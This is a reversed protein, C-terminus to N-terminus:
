RAVNEAMIRGPNENGVAGAIRLRQGVCDAGQTLQDALLWDEADTQAMLEQTQGQTRLRELQLKAMTAGIMRDEIAACALDFNGRLIVAEGDGRVRQGGVDLRGVEIEVVARQFTHAMAPMGDEAHLIVGFGGGAWVVANIQELFKPTRHFSHGASDRFLSNRKIRAFILAVPCTSESESTKAACFSADLRAM